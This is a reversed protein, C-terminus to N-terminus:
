SERSHPNCVKGNQDPQSLCLSVFWYIVNEERSFHKRALSDFESAFKLLARRSEEQNSSNARTLKANLQRLAKSMETHQCRISESANSDLYKDVFPILVREEERQHETVLKMLRALKPHTLNKSVGGKEHSTRIDGRLSKLLTRNQKLISEHEKQLKTLAAPIPVPPRSSELWGCSPCGMEKEDTHACTGETEIVV